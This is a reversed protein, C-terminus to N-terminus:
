NDLYPVHTQEAEERLRIDLQKSFKVVQEEWGRYAHEANELMMYHYNQSQEWESCKEEAYALMRRISETPQGDPARDSM